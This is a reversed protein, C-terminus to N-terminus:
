FFQLSKKPRYEKSNINKLVLTPSANYVKRILYLSNLEQVYVWFVNKHESILKSIRKYNSPLIYDRRNEKRIPMADSYGMFDHFAVYLQNNKGFQVSGVLKKDKKSILLVESLIPEEKNTLRNNIQLYTNIIPIYEFLATDIPHCINTDLTKFALTDFYNCVLKDKIREVENQVKTTITVSNLNNANVQSM